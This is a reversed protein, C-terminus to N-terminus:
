SNNSINFLDSCWRIIKKVSCNPKLLHRKLRLRTSQFFVSGSVRFPDYKSHVFCKETFILKWGDVLLELKHNADAM